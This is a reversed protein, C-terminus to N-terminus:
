EDDKSDATTNEDILGDALHCKDSLWQESYFLTRIDKGAPWFFFLELVDSFVSCCCHIQFHVLLELIGLTTHFSKPLLWSSALGSSGEAGLSLLQFEPCFVCLFLTFVRFIFLLLNLLSTLVQLFDLM